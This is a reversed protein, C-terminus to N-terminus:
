APQSLRASAQFTSNPMNAETVLRGLIAIALQGQPGDFAVAKEDATLMTGGHSFVLAQWMWNGTIQWSFFVGSIAPISAEIRKALGIVGDWDKPFNDPDGGARKM